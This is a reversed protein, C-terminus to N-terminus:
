DGIMLIHEKDIDIMRNVATDHVLTSLEKLEKNKYEFVM